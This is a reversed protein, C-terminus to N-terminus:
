DPEYSRGYFRYTHDRSWRSRPQGGVGTGCASQSPVSIDGCRDVRSRTRQHHITQRSCRGYSCPASRSGLFGKEGGRFVWCGVWHLRWLVIHWTRFGPRLCDKPRVIWFRTDNRLYPSFRKSIEATVIVQTLDESLM